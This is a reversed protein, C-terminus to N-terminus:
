NILSSNEFEKMWTNYFTSNKGYSNDILNVKKDLLVSLIYGHLRTTYIEDYNNIFDIGQLMYWKSLDRRKFGYSHNIINKFGPKKVLLTSIIDDAKSLANKVKTGMNREMPPWDRVEIKKRTHIRDKLAKVDFSQSLEKDQRKLILINNTEANNNYKELDLCFAMDPVLLITNNTFHKKLIDYSTTDRACITLDPHQNFLQADRLLLDNDKYYVTQPLIIIKSGPFASIVQTKFKQHWRWIDGFNGGGHLLILGNSPIRKFDCYTLNAMYQRKFPLRELYALEGECILQDGINYHNPVDLLCYDQQIIPDLSQYVRERLQLINHQNSNM